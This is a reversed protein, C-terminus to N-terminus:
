KVGAKQQEAARQTIKMKEMWSMKKSHFGREIAERHKEDWSTVVGELAWDCTWM